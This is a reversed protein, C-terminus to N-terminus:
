QALSAGARLAHKDLSLLTEWKDGTLKKELLNEVLELPVSETATLYTGLLVFNSVRSDGLETAMQTAPVNLIRVDKRGIADESILSSDVVLLGGQKVRKEYENLSAPGMIIIASSDLKIVSDIEEDSLIVTCESEGGRMAGGFNSFYSIHKYKSMGAEALLKGIILAGQGGLGTVMLDFYNTRTEEM